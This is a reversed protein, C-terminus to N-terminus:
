FWDDEGQQGSIIGFQNESYSKPTLAYLDNLVDDETGEINDVGNINENMYNYIDFGMDKIKRLFYIIFLGIGSSMVLDDHYGSRAEAKGSAKYIFNDLENIFRISHFILQKLRIKEELNLVLLERTSKNTSFGPVLLDMNKFTEIVKEISISKYVNATKPSWFVNDYLEMVKQLTNWGISNNEIIVFANNYEIAVAVIYKAYTSTPIKGYYEAVQEIIGTSITEKYVNMASNDDGDGRAVDCSIFYRIDSDDAISHEWIWFKDNYRKEIPEKVHNESYWDIVSSSIVNTGSSLFSCAYEQNFERAGFKTIMKNKWEEDRDPHLNWSLKIPNFENEGNLAKIWQNYFQGGRGCNHSVINNTYYENHKEVNLLDYVKAKKNVYEIKIIKVIKNKHLIKDGVSLMDARTFINNKLKIEHDITCELYDEDFSLKLYKDVTKEKIGEFDSWGSPTLVEWETINKIKEM